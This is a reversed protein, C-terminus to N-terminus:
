YKGHNGHGRNGNNGHKQGVEQIERSQRHRLGEVGWSNQTEWHKVKKWNKWHTQVQAHPIPEVNWQHGRWQHERYDNRWGRPIQRYFSPENRYHHWGSSYDRSRYWGGEYPRWWWGDYFFIEEDVDPAVYVYTEPLVVLRPPGSFRIVPPLPIGINISIEAMTHLPCVLMLASLLTGFFLKKM